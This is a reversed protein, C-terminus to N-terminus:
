GGHYECTTVPCYKRCLGGPKPPFQKTETAQELQAVRPLVSAWLGMMDSRKIVAHTTADEKLWVYESRVYNVDPHHAFICQATLALQISDDIIKGTKWDVCLALAGKIKAVDVVARFWVNKAFWTTPHMDKTIALQQEVLLMYDRPETVIKDRWHAWDTMGAPLPKDQSLNDALAKHVANGWDLQVTSDAHAKLVDVEHYKRPCTEYNKLRSFSWAFPKPKVETTLTKIM